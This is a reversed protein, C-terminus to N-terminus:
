RSISGTAPQGGPHAGRPGGERGSSRRWTALTAVVYESRDGTAIFAILGRIKEETRELREVREKGRAELDRTDDRLEEAVRKRFQAIGDPSLM